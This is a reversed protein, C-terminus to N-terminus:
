TLESVSRAKRLAIPRFPQSQPGIVVPKARRTLNTSSRASAHAAVNVIATLAARASLDAGADPWRRATRKEARRLACRRSAVGGPGAPRAAHLWAPGIVAIPVEAAIDRWGKWLHFSALNDAGMLWVFHVGPCRRRLYLILDRTYRTGLTAEIDSVVIRPHHAVRAAAAMREAIPPLARVDKLPNGPSVLWWIRDLGLRRLALLSIFRHGDHPPDFSGGLLGIKLGPGHPPLRPRAAM